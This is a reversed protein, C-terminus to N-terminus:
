IDEDDAHRLANPGRWESLIRKSGDPLRQYKMVPGDKITGIPTGYHEPSLRVGEAFAAAPSQSVWYRFGEAKEEDTRTDAPIPKYM